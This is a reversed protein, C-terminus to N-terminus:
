APAASHVPTWQRDEEWPPTAIAPTPWQAQIDLPERSGTLRAALADALLPALALKTPWATLVRGDQVLGFQDPRGGRNTAQESRPALYTAWTTGGLSLGPMAHLIDRQAAQITEAETQETGHEAVQGGIQWTRTDGGGAVTTITLWPRTSRICHGNLVPLPGRALVMRLPRTQAVGAPLGALERLKANGSGATLVVHSARVRPGDECAVDVSEADAAMRTVEGRFIRTEHMNALVGLLSRPELVPEAVRLVQGRVGALAAPRSETPWATPPTRLALKAGLLGALSRMGPAAWVVCADARMQVSSLNPEREGGLMALWRTPMESVAKAAAGATGGLAYKLGGHLIGQSWVTQGAGLRDREVLWVRCGRRHLADLTLLGAIGGGVILVDLETPTAPM